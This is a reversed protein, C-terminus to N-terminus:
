VVVSFDDMSLNRSFPTSWDTFISAASSQITMSWFQDTSQRLKWFIERSDRATNRLTYLISCIYGVFRVAAWHLFCLRSPWSACWPLPIRNKRSLKKNCEQFRWQAEPVQQRRKAVNKEKPKRALMEVAWQKRQAEIRRKREPSAIRRRGMIELKKWTSWFPKLNKIVRHVM